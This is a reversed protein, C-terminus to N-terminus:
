CNRHRGRARPASGARVVLTGRAPPSAGGIFVAIFPWSGPLLAPGDQVGAAQKSGAPPRQQAQQAQKQTCVILSKLTYLSQDGASRLSPALVHRALSSQVLLLSGGKTSNILREHEITPHLSLYCWIHLPKAKSGFFSVTQLADPSAGLSPPHHPRRATCPWSAVSSEFLYHLRIHKLDLATAHHHDVCLKCLAAGAKKHM